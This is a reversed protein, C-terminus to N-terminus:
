PSPCSPSPNKRASRLGGMGVGARYGAGSACDNPQRHATSASVGNEVGQPSPAEIVPQRDRLSAPTDDIINLLSQM